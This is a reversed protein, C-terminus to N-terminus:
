KPVPVLTRMDGAGEASLGDRHRQPSAVLGPTPSSWFSLAVVLPVSNNWEEGCARVVWGDRGDWGM